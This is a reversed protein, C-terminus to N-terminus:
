FKKLNESAKLILGRMGPPGELSMSVPGRGLGGMGGMGGDQPGFMVSGVVDGPSCGVQGGVVVVKNDSM